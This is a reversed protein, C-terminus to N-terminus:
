WTWYTNKTTTTNVPISNKGFNFFLHSNAPNNVDPKRYTTKTKTVLKRVHNDESNPKKTYTTTITRLINNSSM